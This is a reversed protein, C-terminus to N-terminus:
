TGRVSSGAPLAYELLLRQHESVVGVGHAGVTSRELQHAARTIDGVSVSPRMVNMLALNPICSTSCPRQSAQRSGM